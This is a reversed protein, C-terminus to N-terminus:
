LPEICPHDLIVLTMDRSTRFVVIAIRGFILIRFGVWCPNYMRWVPSWFLHYLASAPSLLSGVGALYEQNMSQPIEKSVKGLATDKGHEPFQITTLRDSHMNSRTSLAWGPGSVHTNRVHGRMISRTGNDDWAWGDM